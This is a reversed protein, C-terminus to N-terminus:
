YSSSAKSIMGLTLRAHRWNDITKPADLPIGTAADFRWSFDEGSFSVYRLAPYIALYAKMQIFGNFPTDEHDWPFFKAISLYEIGRPLHLSALADKLVERTYVGYNKHENADVVICLAKLHPFMHCVGELLGMTIRRVPFELSELESSSSLGKLLPIVGHTDHEEYWPVYGWLRVHVVPRGATFAHASTYPGHYVKLSPLDSADLEQVMPHEGMDPMPFHIEELAPCRSLLPQLYVSTTFRYDLCLTHMNSFIAAGFYTLPPLMQLAGDGILSLSEIKNPNIMSLLLTELGEAHDLHINVILNKVVLTSLAVASCRCHMLTL